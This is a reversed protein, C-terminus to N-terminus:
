SVRSVQRPLLVDCAFDPALRRVLLHGLGAHGRFLAADDPAGAVDAVMLRGRGAAWDALRTNLATDIEDEVGPLRTTLTALIELRGAEGCCLDDVQDLPSARLTALATHLDAALRGDKDGLMDMLLTRALAIGPAGHCWTSSGQQRGTQWDGAAPNFLANEYAVAEWAAAHCRADGTAAHIHALATAIGAAGHSLGALGARRRGPWHRGGVRDTQSAALLATGCAAMAQAVVPGTDLVALGWALGAAGDMVDSADGVPGNEIALALPTEVALALADHALAPDALLRACWALGAIMGGLGRGYGPGFRRALRPAEGRHIAARLPQQAQRALDLLREDDLARGAEALFVAIGGAGYCLGPGAPAILAPMQEWLRVWRLTGPEQAVALDAVRDALARLTTRFDLGPVAEAVVGVNQPLLTPPRRAPPRLAARLLTTTRNITVDDLAALAATVQDYPPIAFVPGLPSTATGAAEVSWAERGDPRFTFAPIDLRDLARAEAALARRWAAPDGLLPARGAARAVQRTFAAEDKAGEGILAPALVLGYLNTAALLLRCRVNRFRALSGEPAMLATKHAVLTRLTAQFGDLVATSFNRVDLPVSGLSPGPAFSPVPQEGLHLWDTGAHRVVTQPRPALPGSGAAALPALTVGGDFSTYVPLIGNAFLHPDDLPDAVGLDAPSPQFLCELDVVVPFLGAPILNDPHIDSGRLLFMLALLGGCREMYAHAGAADPLPVPDVWEMWGHDGGDMVWPVRHAPATGAANLWDLLHGFAAEAALARPKYAIRTGDALTVRIVTCGGGHPDSLGPTLDAVAPVAGRWAPYRVALAPADQHFHRAFATIADVWDTCMRDLRHRLVPWDALRAAAQPGQAAEAFARYRDRPVWAPPEDYLRAIAPVAEAAQFAATLAPGAIEGLRAALARTAGRRAPLPLVGGGALSRDLCEAARDVLPALIDLFPIDLFPTDM